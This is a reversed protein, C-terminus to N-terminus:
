KAYKDCNNTGNKGWPCWLCEKCPTATFEKNNIKNYIDRCKDEFITLETEPLTIEMVQPKYDKKNIKKKNFIIFKVLPISQYKRWYAYSYSRTQITDIDKFDYDFSSTKYEVIGKDTIRDIYGFLPVPIGKIPISFQYENEINEDLVPNSVYKDLMKRILGYMELEAKTKDVVLETFMKEMIKDVTVGKHFLELCKHFATGIKFADNPLQRLKLIYTYYFQFPCTEYTKLSTASLTKIM